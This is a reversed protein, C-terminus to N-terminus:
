KDLGQPQCTPCYYSGRGSSRDKVYAISDKACSRCGMKLRNFVLWHAHDNTGTSQKIFDKVCYTIKGKVVRSLSSWKTHPHVGARHLIECSMYNGLGATLKQDLLVDKATRGSEVEWLAMTAGYPDLLWDPYARMEKYSIHDTEHWFWKGWTRPDHYEWEQGDSLEFIMRLSKPNISHLFNDTLPDRANVEAPVFWGTSRLQIEWCGRKLHLFLKKGWRKVEVLPTKQIGKVWEEVDGQIYKLDRAAQPAFSKISRGVWYQEFTQRLREVETIEPM